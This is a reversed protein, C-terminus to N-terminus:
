PRAALASIALTGSRGDSFSMGVLVDRAGDGDVDGPASMRAGFSRVGPISTTSVRAGGAAFRDIAGEGGRRGPAGAVVAGGGLADVVLALSAGLRDGAVGRAVARTRGSSMDFFYLAGAGNEADPAGGVVVLGAPREIVVARGLHGGAISGAFSMRTGRAEDLLDIRGADIATTDALPASVLFGSAVPVASLHEGFREGTSVGFFTRRLSSQGSAGLRYIFVAGTPRGSRDLAGPAGVALSDGVVALATGFGAGAGGQSFLALVTGSRTGIVAVVGDQQCSQDGVRCAAPAGLAIDRLGDGDLDIVTAISAIPATLGLAAAELVVARDGLAGLGAIATFGGLCGPDNPSCLGALAFGCGPGDFICDFGSPFLDPVFFAIDRPIELDRPSPLDCGPAGPGPCVPDCLDGLSIGGSDTQDPDRDVEETLDEDGDGLPCNDLDDPVGDNDSDPDCADPVGDEDRDASSASYPRDDFTLGPPPAPCPMGSALDFGANPCGDGDIDCDCANGTGDGDVDANDIPRSAILGPCLDCADGFADGDTEAQAPDFVGPCVDDESSVCDSEPDIIYAFDANGRVTSSPATSIYRAGAPLPNAFWRRITEAFYPAASLM